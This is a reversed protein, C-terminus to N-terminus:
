KKGKAKKKKKKLLTSKKTTKVKGKCIVVPNVVKKDEDAIANIVPHGPILASGDKNAKHVSGLHRKLKCSETFTKGCLSCLYPREGTHLRQHVTLRQNQTFTKGCVDCRFPRAGSHILQCLIFVMSM